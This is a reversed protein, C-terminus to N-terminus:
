VAKRAKAIEEQKTNPMVHAYLDTTMSLSEHGLIEKLTLPNMGGEIMRTAFTDRFAHSTFHEIEMGNKRMTEIAENIAKNVANNLVLCNRESLFITKRSLLPKSQQRKLIVIAEDTLPIDRKSKASKPTGITIFGDTDRTTTKTVHIWKNTFDVDEWSLAAIEGVRMGTELALELFECYYTGKIAEKFAEQEEITLARHITERAQARDHMLSDVNVPNSAIRKDKVARSLISSLLAIISNVSTASLKKEEVIRSYKCKKPKDYITKHILSTQLRFVDEDKIDKLRKGGLVPEIHTNFLTRYTYLSNDKVSRAKREEWEEFYASLTINGGKTLAGSELEQMKRRYNADLEELSAGYVSYRKGDEKFLFRREYGGNKRVRVGKDLKKPRAM